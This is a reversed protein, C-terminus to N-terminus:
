KRCIYEKGVGHAAGPPHGVMQSEFQTLPMLNADDGTIRIASKGRVLPEVIADMHM